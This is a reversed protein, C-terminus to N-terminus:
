LLKGPSVESMNFSINKAKKGSRKTAFIEGVQSEEILARLAATQEHRQLIFAGWFRCHLASHREPRAWPAKKDLPTSAMPLFLSQTASWLYLSSFLSISAADQSINALWTTGSASIVIDDWTSGPSKSM